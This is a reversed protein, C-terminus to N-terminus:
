TRRWRGGRRGNEEEKEGRKSLIGVRRTMSVEDAGIFGGVNLRGVVQVREGRQAGSIGIGKSRTPTAPTKPRVQEM